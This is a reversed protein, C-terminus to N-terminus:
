ISIRMMDCGLESNPFLSRAEELLMDAADAKYRSSIHTLILRKAGAQRAIEAAQSATSHSAVEAEQQHTQSFTADHILLDCKKALEISNACPKTDLCIAIKKGPQQPGLIQEPRIQTGDKLDASKGEKLQSRLPGEPIDLKEAEKVNFKGPRSKEEIRFGM